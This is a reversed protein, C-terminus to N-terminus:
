RYAAQAAHYGLEAYAKASTVPDPRAAELRRWQKLLRVLARLEVRDDHRMDPWDILRRNTYHWRRYTLLQHIRELVLQEM